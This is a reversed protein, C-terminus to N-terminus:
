STSIVVVQSYPKYKSIMRSVRGIDTVSIIIPSQLNFASKVCSNAVAEVKLMPKKATTLMELFFEQYNFHQEASVCVDHMTKLAELPYKGITTESNLLLCDAGDMVASHIDTVEARLPFPNNVMSDLFQSALICPKAAHNCFKIVSKQIWSIKEIPLVTGLVGRPIMIADAFNLIEEIDKIAEENELKAIVKVENIPKGEEKLRENQDSIM